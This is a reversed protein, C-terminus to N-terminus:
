DVGTQRFIIIQGSGILLQFTNSLRDFFSFKTTHSYRLLDGNVFIYCKSLHFSKLKSTKECSRLETFLYFNQLFVYKHLEYFELKMSVPIVNNKNGIRM